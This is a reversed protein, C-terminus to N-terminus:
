RAQKKIVGRLRSVFILAPDAAASQRGINVNDLGYVIVYVAGGLMSFYLSPDMLDYPVFFAVYLAFMAGSLVEFAGFAARSWRFLKYFLLGAGVAGCAFGVAGLWRVLATSNSKVAAALGAVLDSSVVITAYILCGTGFSLVFSVTAFSVFFPLALVSAGERRYIDISEQAAITLSLVLAIPVVVFQVVPSMYSLFMPAVSVVLLPLLVSFIVFIISLKANPDPPRDPM